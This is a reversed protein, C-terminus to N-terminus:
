LAAIAKTSRPNVTVKNSTANEGYSDTIKVWYVGQQSVTYTSGSSGDQWEYTTILNRPDLIVLSGICVSTDSGLNVTLPPSVIVQITDKFICGDTTIAVSYIGSQTVNFMSNTSNDQWLYTANPNTADLIFNANNCLITDKGFNINPASIYNLSITDYGTCNNVTVKVSFIYPIYPPSVTYTANTSGDQWLYTANPYSANLTLTQGYCLITDNGLNIVPIPNVTLNTTVISDCGTVTSVLTDKYVGAISYTHSLYHFLAGQCIVPNQTSYTSPIVTLNTTVISDCYTVVSVLTDNYIGATTYNHTGIHFFDGECIVPNLTAYVLPTVYIKISDCISTDCATQWRAYYTTTQTPSPINLPSDSGVYTQGCANKYWKLTDGSGGIASLTLIGNENICFTNKNAQLSIPPLSHCMRIKLIFGNETANYPPSEYYAGNGPDFTYMFISPTIIEGILYISNKRDVAIALCFSRGVLTGYCTAWQRVGYKDFKLIFANDAGSAQMWYEGALYQTPFNASATIGTVILNDSTDTCVSFGRDYQSGGYYTAWQRVGLNNFKLIFADNLGANTSQYYAGSLQQTPFNTSSTSGTVYINDQSDTCVSYAVDTQGGGYYTAWQRVGLSNFKLIFANNSGNNTPQWYAGALQQVPFNPSTASGVIILNNQNDICVNNETYNSNFYYYGSYYLDEHTGGYYTSWKLIFQSNFKVIFVDNMGGIIPQWYAGSLQLLPFDTSKTYGVLYINGLHDVRVTTAGDDSSGGFYTAWQRVGSNNFKIIVADYNGSFSPQWYAGSLQQIPFNTSYTYGTVYINNQSDVCIANGYDYGTGGYYTSWLLLGINNFKLIFIDISGASTLQN